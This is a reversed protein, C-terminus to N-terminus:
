SAQAPLLERLESVEPPAPLNHGIGAVNAATPTHEFVFNQGSSFSAGRFEYWSGPAILQIYNNVLATGAVRIIDGARFNFGSHLLDVGGWYAIANVRLQNRGGGSVVAFSVDTGWAGAPAMLAPNFIYPIYTVGVTLDQFRADSSLDFVVNGSSPDGNDPCGTMSLGIIAVVAVIVILKFRNKM